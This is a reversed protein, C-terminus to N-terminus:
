PSATACGIHPTSGQYASYYIWFKGDATVVNGYGDHLIISRYLGSTEWYAPGPSLLTGYDNFSGPSGSWAHLVNGQLSSGPSTVGKPYCSGMIYYNEGSLVMSPHSMGDETASSTLLWPGQLSSKNIVRKNNNDWQFTFYSITNRFQSAGQSEYCVQFTGDKFVMAPNGHGYVLIPDAGQNWDFNWHIGDDSYGFATNGVTLSPCVTWIIFWKGYEPVYLWDPDAEHDSNWSYSSRIVPNNIGEETWVYGDNSRVVCPHEQANDPYPTYIMWFKYGDKPTSFYVVDPHVVGAGGHLPLNLPNVSYKQWNLPLDGVQGNGGHLAIHTDLAAQTDFQQGCIPCTYKTGNDGDGGNDGRPWHILDNNYAYVISGTLVLM